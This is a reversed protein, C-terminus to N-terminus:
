VASGTGARLKERLAQYAPISNMPPREEDSIAAVELAFREPEQVVLKMSRNAIDILQAGSKSELRAMFVQLIAFAMKSLGVLPQNHHVRVELDVQALGELGYITFLDLLLGTEVGYGTFFPVRELAERRGAYEGSLPQILGSLEPYFLNFMPRAVLETVRGGGYAQLKDGVQIPRQYFGKTYQLRPHKLLPGILGYVFRPHINTIDTDVWAIIDGKLVHLSKWLAEGKGRISGMEPLIEPHKHVPIGSALALPVTNDTSNSDILVIEDLLPVEDMLASKLTHIVKEVTKEENLAPLGLSISVGRKEKMALLGPIDAFEASHFTNEAFWRDVQTSIDAASSRVLAPAHFVMAEPQHARVLALALNTQRYVAEMVSHRQSDVGQQRRLGSGMVIATHQGSEGLIGAAIETRATIARAIKPEARMVVELEPADRRVDAAHFLTITEDGSLAKAVKTGLTLNPGGRLSLLVRGSQLWSEGHLLVVDCPLHDLLADTSAGGTTADPGAWQVLALDVPQQAIDGLLRALPEHEVYVRVDDDIQPHQRAIPDITSRWQQALSAYESPSTNEPVEVLARVHVNGGDGALRVALMLWADIDSFETLLLLVETHAPNIM